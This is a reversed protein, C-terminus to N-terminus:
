KPQIQELVYIKRIRKTKGNKERERNIKGKIEIKIKTKKRRIDISIKEMRRM